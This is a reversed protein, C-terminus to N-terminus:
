IIYIRQQKGKKKNNNNLLGFQYTDYRRLDSGLFYIEPFDRKFFVPKDM